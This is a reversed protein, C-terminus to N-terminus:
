RAPLLALVVGYGAGRVSLKVSKAEALAAAAAENGAAIFAEVRTGGAAGTHDKCNLVAMTDALPGDKEFLPLQDVAPGRRVGVFPKVLVDCALEKGLAPTADLTLARWDNAPPLQLGGSEVAQYLAVVRNQVVGWLQFRVVSDGGIRLLERAKGSPFYLDVPVNGEAAACALTTRSADLPTRLLARAEADAAGGLLASPAILVRCTADKGVQPAPDLLFSRLPDAAADVELAGSRISVYSAVLQNRAFGRLLVDVVTGNGIKLLSGGQRAGFYATVGVSGGRADACRLLAKRPALEEGILAKADDDESGVAVPMAPATARCAVTQGQLKDPWLLASLLDPDTKGPAARRPGGIVGRVVAVPQGAYTGRMELAVITERDIDLIVGKEGEPFWALVPTSQLGEGAVKCFLTTRRDDITGAGQAAAARIEDAGVAVPSPGILVECRVLKGVFEAPRNGLAVLDVNAAAKPDVNAGASPAAAAASAAGGAAANGEAPKAEGAAAEEAPAANEAQVPAAGQPDPGDVPAPDRKCGVIALSAILLAAALRRGQGPLLTSGGPAAVAVQLFTPVKRM